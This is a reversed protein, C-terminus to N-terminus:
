EKFGSAILTLKIEDKITKDINVGFIIQTDEKYQLKERLKEVLSQIEEYSIDDSAKINLIFKRAESINFEELLNNSFASTLVNKIKKDERGVGIGVVSKGSDKLVTKLDAFDLNIFSPVTLLESIEKIIRSVFEDVLNFAELFTLKNKALKSIKNNDIILYTDAINELSKLGEDAIKKRVKGEFDFPKTIVAVTLIGMDKLMKAVEPLVGTGTGGGFGAILFVLDADKLLPRIKDASEYFAKTGVDIKSGAGIKDKGILVKNKLSYKSLSKFNTDLICLEVNDVCKELKSAINSGAGGIGLIRIRPIFSNM